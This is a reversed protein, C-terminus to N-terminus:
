KGKSKGSKCHKKEMDAAYSYIATIDRVRLISFVHWILMKYSMQLIIENEGSKERAKPCNKM